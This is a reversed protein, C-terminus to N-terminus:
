KDGDSWGHTWYTIMYAKQHPLGQAHFYEKCATENFYSATKGQCVRAEKPEDHWNYPYIVGPELIVIDARENQPVRRLYNEYAAKLMIPGTVQEASKVRADVRKMIGAVVHLWFPHGRSSALWANPLSHEFTRDEGMQGIYAADQTLLSDLPKLCEADLDVYVGGMHHMYLYRSADAKAIKSPLRDYYPLFWPYHTAVLNRNTADTWLIHTWSPNHKTWTESWRRFHPPLSKTKWSQHIFKPIEEKPFVFQPKINTISLLLASTDDAGNLAIASNRDSHRAAPVTCDASIHRLIADKEKRHQNSNSDM